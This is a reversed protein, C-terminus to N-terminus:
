RAKSLAKAFGEETADWSDFVSQDIKLDEPGGPFTFNAASRVGERAQREAEASSKKDAAWDEIIRKFAPAVDVFNGNSIRQVAAPDSALEKDLLANIGAKDMKTLGLNKIGDQGFFDDVRSQYRQRTAAMAAANQRQQEQTEFRNLRSRLDSVENMLESDPGKGSKEAKDTKGYREVYHEAISDEIRSAADVNGSQRLLQVLQKGDGSNIVAQLGALAKPTDLLQNIQAKSYGSERLIRGLEADEAATPDSVEVKPETAAPKTEEQPTAADAPSPSVTVDKLTADESM